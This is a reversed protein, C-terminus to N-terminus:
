KEQEAKLVWDPHEIEGMLVHWLETSISYASENCFISILPSIIITFAMITRLLWNPMWKVYWDMDERRMM